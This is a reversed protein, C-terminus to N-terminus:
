VQLNQPLSVQFSRYQSAPLGNTMNLDYISSDGISQANNAWLLTVNVWSTELIDNRQVFAWFIAALTKGPGIESLSRDHLDTVYLRFPPQHGKLSFWILWLIGGTNPTSPPLSKLMIKGLVICRGIYAEESTTAKCPM